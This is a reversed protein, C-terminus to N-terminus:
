QSILKLIVDKLNNIADDNDEITDLMIDIVNDRTELRAYLINIREEYDEIIENFAKMDIEDLKTNLYEKFQEAKKSLM